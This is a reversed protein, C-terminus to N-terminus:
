QQKNKNQEDFLNANRVIETIYKMAIEADYVKDREIYRAVCQYLRAHM